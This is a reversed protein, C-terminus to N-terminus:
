TFDINEIKTKVESIDNKTKLLLAFSPNISNAKVLMSQTLLVEKNKTTNNMIEHISTKFNTLATSYNSLSKKILQELNFLYDFTTVNGKNFDKSLIGDLVAKTQNQKIVTIQDSIDKILYYRFTDFEEDIIKAIIEKENQLFRGQIEEQYVKHKDRKKTFLFNLIAFTANVFVGLVWQNGISLNTSFNFRPLIFFFVFTSLLVFVTPLSWILYNRIRRSKLDKLEKDREVILTLLVSHIKTIKTSFHDSIRKQISQDLQSIKETTSKSIDNEHVTILSPNFDADFVPHNLNVGQLTNYITTCQSEFEKRAFSFNHFIEKETESLNTMIDPEELDIQDLQSSLGLKRIYNKAEVSFAAVTYIKVGDKYSSFIENLVAKAEDIQKIITDIPNVSKTRNKLSEIQKKLEPYLSYALFDFCKKNSESYLNKSNFSVSDIFNLKNTVESNLFVHTEENQILGSSDIDEFLKEKLKEKIDSLRSNLTLKYDDILKSYRYNYLTFNEKHWDKILDLDLYNVPTKLTQLVGNNQNISGDIIQKIKDDITRWSNIMKDTGIRTKKDYDDINTKARTFFKEVTEFKENILSLFFQKVEKLSRIFYDIKHDHLRLINGYNEPNCYFNIKEILVDIQYNELNDIAVFEDVRLEITPVVSKIRAALEAAFTEYKEVNFNTTDLQKLTEKKFENSRTVLYITPIDFLNREKERLLPIDSNTFPHTAAMCYVILDCLPLSDRIIEEYTSPDGSGPTDMIVKDELFTNGEIQVIVVPVKGSRTMNIVDSNNELGSILTIQDDTPNHATKKEDKTGKLKLINNITSSKGSSFHGLFGIYFLNNTRKLYQDTAREIRVLQNLNNKSTLSEKLELINEVLEMDLEAKLKKIGFQIKTCRTDQANSDM